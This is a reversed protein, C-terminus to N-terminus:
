CRRRRRTRDQGQILIVVVAVFSPLLQLPVAACSVACRRSRGNEIGQEAAAVVGSM